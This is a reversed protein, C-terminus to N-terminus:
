MGELFKEIVGYVKNLQKKTISYPPMVYITNGLSRLYVGRKLCFATFSNSISNLYNDKTTTIIEFAIVTGSQRLNKVRALLTSKELRSLFQKHRLIIKNINKICRKKKLLKLSALSATCALPNATFSHGHYFTKTKDNS